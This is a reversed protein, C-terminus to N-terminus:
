GQLNHFILGEQGLYRRAPQMSGNMDSIARMRLTYATDTDKYNGGMELHRVRTGIASFARIGKDAVKRIGGVVVASLVLAALPVAGAIAEPLLLAVVAVSAANVIPFAAYEVSKGLATNIAQGRPANAIELAAFPLDYFLGSSGETFGRRLNSSVSYRTNDGIERFAKIAHQIM